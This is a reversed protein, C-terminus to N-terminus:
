RGAREGSLDRAAQTLGVRGGRRTGIRDLVDDISPREALRELEGVLYQQLSQGLREARRQLAAHTADPVNRVLVNPM